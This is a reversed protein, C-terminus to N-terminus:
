IAQQELDALEGSRIIALVQGAKVHDGLEAKVADIHGGVLPFVKVVKDQNFTIKGTLNLEDKVPKRFATDIRADALLNIKSPAEKAGHPEDTSSQCGVLAIVFSPTVLRALTRALTYYSNSQQLQM